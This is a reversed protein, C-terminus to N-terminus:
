AELSRRLAARALLRTSDLTPLSADEPVVVLPIETCGLVAGDCGRARFAAIEDYFVRRTPERFVGNVLEGFILQNIHERKKASPVEIAIGRRALVDGYVPGEMLYKTGLVGLHRLGCRQAEDAVVEAIHLFPIPSRPLLDPFAQHCTNDPCIAFAAGAAAVERAGELLLDAVGTWDDRRIYEMHRSMPISSISMRPHAHEGLLPLADLAITRYCLAAGEVSCAVIGIHRPAAYVAGTM